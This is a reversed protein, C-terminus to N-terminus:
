ITQKQRLYSREQLRWIRQGKLNREVSHLFEEEEPIDFIQDILAKFFIIEFTDPANHPYFTFNNLLLNAAIRDGCGDSLFSFLLVGLNNKEYNSMM